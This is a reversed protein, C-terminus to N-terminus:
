FEIIHRRIKKEYWDPIREPCPLKGVSHKNLFDIDYNWPDNMIKLFLMHEKKLPPVDRLEPFTRNTQMSHCTSCLSIIARVDLVRPQSVIHARENPQWNAHWWEPRESANAGCAWCSRFVVKFKQYKNM